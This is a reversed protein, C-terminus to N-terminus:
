NGGTVFATRQDSGDADQQQEDDDEGPIAALGHHSEDVFFGIRQGRRVHAEGNVAVCNIEARPRREGADTQGVEPINEASRLSM